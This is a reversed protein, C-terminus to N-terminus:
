ASMLLKESLAGASRSLERLRGLLPDSSVFTDTMLLKLLAHRMDNTFRATAQKLTAEVQLQITNSCICM